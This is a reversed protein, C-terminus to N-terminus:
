TVGFGECCSIARSSSDRAGPTSTRTRNAIRVVLTPRREISNDFRCSSRAGNHISKAKLSPSNVTENDNFSRTTDGRRCRGPTSSNSWSLRPTGATADISCPPAYNRCAGQHPRCPVRDRVESGAPAATATYNRGPAARPQRDLARNSARRSREVAWRICARTPRSRM